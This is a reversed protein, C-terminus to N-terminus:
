NRTYPITMMASGLKHAHLLFGIMNPTVEGKVPLKDIDLAWVTYQYRHMGDAQPPCPGGYQRTGFDNSPMQAGKPLAGKPNGAGEALSSTSAPIDTMLWHWWGGGTPADPDHLTIAFSKTGAPANSWVLPPSINKGTCGWGNFAFRTDLPKGENLAPSKLAFCKSGAKAPWCVDNSATEAHSSLSALLIMSAALTAHKM